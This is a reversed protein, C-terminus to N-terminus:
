PVGSAAAEPTPRLLTERHIVINAHNWLKRIQLQVVQARRQNNLTIMVEQKLDAFTAPKQDRREMMLVVHWGLKTRFPPTMTGPALGFVHDAFDRPMREQSCWGLDGGILRTRADESYKAALATFDEGEVLRRHLDGILAAREPTDQEVTSLFLHRVRVAEPFFKGPADAPLSDFWSKAEAESVAPVVGVRQELWWRQRAQELLQKEIDTPTLGQLQARDTMDGSTAFQEEFARKQEAVASLSPFFGFAGAYQRVLTDEILRELVTWRMLTLNKEPVDSRSKGRRALFVDLAKELTARTVPETNVEAVWDEKAADPHGTIAAKERALKRQYLPGKFLFLDSILYLICAGYLLARWPFPSKKPTPIM